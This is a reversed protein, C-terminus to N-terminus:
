SPNLTPHPIKPSNQIKGSIQITPELSSPNWIVYGVFSFEFPNRNMKYFGGGWLLFSLHFEM